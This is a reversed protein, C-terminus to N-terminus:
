AYRASRGVGCIAAFIMIKGNRKATAVYAVVSVFIKFFITIVGLTLSINEYATFGGTAVISGLLFGVAVFMDRYGDGIYYYVNVNNGAAKRVVEEELVDSRPSHDRRRSGSGSEASAM